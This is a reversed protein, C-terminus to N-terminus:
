SIEIIYRLLIYLSIPIGVQILEFEDECKDLEYIKLAVHNNSPKHRAVWVTGKGGCVSGLPSWVDYNETSAEFSVM